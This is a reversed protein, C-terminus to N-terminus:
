RAPLPAVFTPIQTVANIGTWDLVAPPHLFVPRHLLPLPQASSPSRGAVQSRFQRRRKSRTPFPTTLTRTALFLVLPSLPPALPRCRGTPTPSSPSSPSHCPPVPAQRNKDRPVSAGLPGLGWAWCAAVAADFAVRGPGFITFSSFFLSRARLPCICLVECIISVTLGNCM